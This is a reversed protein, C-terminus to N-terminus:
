KKVHKTIYISYGGIIMLLGIVIVLLVLIIIATNTPFIGLLIGIIGYLGILFLPIGAILSGLVIHEGIVKGGQVGSESIYKDSMIVTKDEKLTKKNM